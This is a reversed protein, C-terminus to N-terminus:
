PKMKEFLGLLKNHLINRIESEWKGIPKVPILDMVQESSLGSQYFLKLSNRLTLWVSERAEEPTLGTQVGIKEMEQWQFWFCAPLMASVIAYSELKDEATEFTKGLLKMLKMMETKEGTGMGEFFSVPNYGKNIISTANPIMRALNTTHLMSAMKELTIKPALSLIVTKGTVVSKIKELTEMMVPSHVALVVLEQGAPIKPSEALEINPFQEKLKGSIEQDPEFVRVSIFEVFKNKFAQLFIRTIRGGGIFGITKIKMISSHMPLIKDTIKIM